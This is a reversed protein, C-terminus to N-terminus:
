RVVDVFWFRIGETNEVRLNPLHTATITVRLFNPEAGRVYRVEITPSYQKDVLIEQKTNDTSLVLNGDGIFYGYHVNDTLDDPTINYINREGQFGLDVRAGGLSNFFSNDDIRIASLCHLRINELAYNVQLHMNQLRIGEIIQRGVFLYGVTLAAMIVGILIIGLLLELLTLGRQARFM